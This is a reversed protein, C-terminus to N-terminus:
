LSYNTKSNAIITQSNLETFLAMIYDYMIVCSHWGYISLSRFNFQVAKDFCDM